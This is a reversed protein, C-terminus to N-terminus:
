CYGTGTQPQPVHYPLWEPHKDHEEKSKHRNISWLCLACYDKAVAEITEGRQLRKRVEKFQEWGAVKIAGTDSVVVIGGCSPCKTIEYNNM